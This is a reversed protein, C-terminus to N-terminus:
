AGLCQFCISSRTWKTNCADVAASLWADCPAIGDPDAAPHSCVRSQCGMKGSGVKIRLSVQPVLYRGDCAAADPRRAAGRMCKMCHMALMAQSCLDDQKKMHKM